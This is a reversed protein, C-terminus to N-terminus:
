GLSACVKYREDGTDEYVANLLEVVRHAGIRECWEFPGWPYNTGLKMALDIDERSAIGEELTLYAENIILGIVRPTVLGVRDAVIQYDSNLASCVKRLAEKDSERFLSVEMVPRNLFTPLGCFGFVNEPIHKQNAFRGALSVLSSEVFIIRGTESPFEHTQFDFVVDAMVQPYNDVHAYHHALGFKLKVEELQTLDGIVAIEM